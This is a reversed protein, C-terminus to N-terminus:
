GDKPGPAALRLPDGEFQGILSVLEPPEVDKILDAVQKVAAIKREFNAIDIGTPRSGRRALRPWRKRRRPSCSPQIRRWSRTRSGRQGCGSRSTRCRRRASRIRRRGCPRSIKSMSSATSCGRCRRRWSPACSPRRRASSPTRVCGTPMRCRVTKRGRRLQEHVMLFTDIILDTARAGGADQARHRAAGRGQGHLCAACLPRRGPRANSTAAQSRLADAEEESLRFTHAPTFKEPNRSVAENVRKTETGFAEAVVSDLM